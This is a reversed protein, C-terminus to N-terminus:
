GPSAKLMMHLLPYPRGQGDLASRGAVVFGIHEYFGLAQTNQENVDVKTAGQTQIAHSALRAGVGKGRAKPSIFLMEINGESVGCFGLIEGEENKAINLDVADFYHNLILPKLTILDEEALFDHTARVSQEWIEILVPHDSKQAHQINM